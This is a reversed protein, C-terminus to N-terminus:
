DCFTLADLGQRLNGDKKEVFPMAIVNNSLYLTKTGLYLVYYTTMPYDEKFHKLGTVM